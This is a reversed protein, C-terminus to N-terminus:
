NYKFKSMSNRGMAAGLTMEQLANQFQTDAVLATKFQEYDKVGSLNFVFSIDGVTNQVQSTNNSIIPQAMSESIMKPINMQAIKWLNETMANTFVKDGADLRTLVAGDSKRYILEQGDEQTYATQSHTINRSGSAYGAVGLMGELDNASKELFNQKKKPVYVVHGTNFNKWVSVTKSTMIKRYGQAALMAETSQKANSGASTGAGTNTGGTNGTNNKKATEEALRRQREAEEDEQRKHAAAEEAAKKAAEEAEKKKRAAEAEEDAQKQLANVTSRAQELADKFDQSVLKKQADTLNAFSKEISAISDKDQLTIKSPNIGQMMAEVTNAAQQDMQTKILADFKDLILDLDKHLTGETGLASKLEPTITGDIASLTTVTDTINTGATTVHDGLHQVDDSLEAKADMIVLDRQKMYSDIWEEFNSSLDDLMQQSDSLYKEYQQDSRNDRAEKLDARLKQIRAVAEESTNGEYAALQRELKTINQTSESIQKQYDYAEKEANKLEKYKSITKNLYSLQAEYGQRMLDIIAQKESEAAEMSAYRADILEYIRDQINKDTADYEGSEIKKYVDALEDGYKKAEAIYYEFSTNRLDLAAMGYKTIGGKNDTDFFEENQIMNLYHDIETQLRKVRAMGDDFKTWDLERISNSLEKIDTTLENIENVIGNIVDQAQYWETDGVRIENNAVAKALSAQADIYNQQLVALNRTDMQIQDTYDEVNTYHGHVGARNIMAQSVTNHQNNAQRDNEGQTKINNVQQLARTANQQRITEADIKQQAEAQRRHEIAENYNYCAQYFALDVYGKEYGEALKGLRTAGIAEGKNVNDIAQQMYVAYPNNKPVSAAKIPRAYTEVANRYFDVEEQNSQLIKKTTDIQKQILANQAKFGIANELQNDFYSIDNNAAEEANAYTQSQLNFYETQNTAYNLAEEMRATELNEVGQNYAYLKAYVNPNNNAITKLIDDPIQKNQDIYSKASDLAKKYDGSAKTQKKLIAQADKAYGQLSSANRTTALAYAKNSEQTKTQSLNVRSNSNAYINDNKAEFYGTGVTTVNSIDEISADREADHVEKVAKVQDRLQENLEQIAKKAEYGKNYWESYVDIVERVKESYKKIDNPGIKGEAVNKKIEEAQAKTVLGAKIAANMQKDAFDFYHQGGTNENAIQQYIASMARNRSEEATNYVGRDLLSEAKDTWKDINDTWRGIKVEIWDVLNELEEKFKDLASKKKSKKKSKGKSKSKSKTSKKKKSSSSDSTDTKPVYTTKKASVGDPYATGGTGFAWARGRTNTYGNNLLDETQDANFIIDGKRVDRFEPGSEGLLEWHSGRVRMEPGLEGVLATETKKAGINGQAFAATGMWSGTGDGGGTSGSGGSSVSPASVKKNSLSSLTSSVQRIKRLLIDVTSTVGSFISSDLRSKNAEAIAGPINKTQTIVKKVGSEAKPAGLDGIKANAKIKDASDGVELLNKKTNALDSDAKKTEAKAELVVQKAKSPGSKTFVPTTTSMTSEVKAKIKPAAKAVQKNTNTIKSGLPNGQADVYTIKVRGDIKKIAEEVQATGEALSEQNFIVKIQAAGDDGTSSDIIQQVKDIEADIDEAYLNVGLQMAYQYGSDKNQQLAKQYLQEVVQRQAVSAENTVNGQLTNIYNLNNQAEHLQQLTKVFDAFGKDEFQSTDVSMIWPEELEQKSILVHAMATNIDSIATQVEETQVKPSSELEAKMGVLESMKANAEDVGSFVIPIEELHQQSGARALGANIGGTLENLQDSSTIKSEAAQLALLRQESQELLQNYYEWTATHEQNNKKLEEIKAKMREVSAEAEEVNTSNEGGKLFDGIGAESFQELFIQMMDDTMIFDEGFKEKFHESMMMALEDINKFIMGGDETFWDTLGNEKLVSEIEDYMAFAGSADETFFKKSFKQIMDYYDAAGGLGFDKDGVFMRTFAEFDDNGWFGKDYLDKYTEMWGQISKYRDGYDGSSVAAQWDAYSNATAKYAGQLEQLANINDVIADQANIREQISNYLTRAEDSETDGLNHYEDTLEKIKAQNKDYQEKLEDYKAAIDTRLNERELQSLRRTEKTDLQLGSATAVLADKYQANATTLKNYTDATVNGTSTQEKLATTLASTSDTVSKLQTETAEKWASFSNQMGTATDDVIYGLESLLTITEQIANNTDVIGYQSAMQSLAKISQQSATLGDTDWEVNSLSLVTEDGIDQVLSAYKEQLSTKFQDTFFNKQNFGLVEAVSMDQLTQRLNIGLNEAIAGAQSNVLSNIRDNIRSQTDLVDLNRSLSEWNEETLGMEQRFQSMRTEMINFYDTAKIEKLDPNFISDMLTAISDEGSLDTSQLQFLMDEFKTSSIDDMLTSLNELNQIANILTEDETDISSVLLAYNQKLEDRATTLQNTVDELEQLLEQAYPDSSFDYISSSGQEVWSNTMIDWYGAGDITTKQGDKARLDAIEKELQQQRDVLSRTSSNGTHNGNLIGGIHEDTNGTQRDINERAQERLSEQKALTLQKYQEIQDKIVDTNAIIADGEDTYGTILVPFQDAIQQRVQYYESSGVEAAEYKDLLAQLSDANNQYSKIEDQIAETKKRDTALLQQNRKIIADSSTNVAEFAKVLGYIVVAGAAIGAFLAGWTIGLGATTETVTRTIAKGSADVMGTAQEFVKTTAGVEKGLSQFASGLLTAVKMNNKGSKLLVGYVAILATAATPLLGFNNVLDLTASGLDIFFNIVDRNATQAWAQQWKNQIEALHGSISDKYKQLEEEASGFSDQSSEYVSRLVDPSQLVSAVVNARNKGALTELLGQSRNTGYKKDTEVIEEFVDAIDQLIEYTSRFNGNEDLIDVGKFDNSAVATYDKIIQRSKAETQVVFDDVDEGLEALQDKAEQTGVIRLAVTRFANGVKNPDQIIQNGATILAISEDIDNNATRLTAASNQLATALGETSISFNNGINNLKDLIDEQSLDDYAASMAILADTAESIDSFESVNLLVSANKASRQAQDLSQGLRMFDATSQQIVLGTTGAANAIDYSATQFEKLRSLPEESVKAMETLADDLDHIIQFGQKLENWLTRLSVYSALYAGIERLKGVLHTSFTDGTKNARILEEELRNVQATAQDLTAQNVHDLGVRIQELQQRMDNGMKPNSQIIRSIRSQLSTIDRESAAIKDTNQLSKNLEEVRNCLQTVEELEQPNTIDIGQRVKEQIATITNNLDLLDTRYQTLSEPTVRNTDLLHQYSGTKKSYDNAYKNLANSYKSQTAQITRQIQKQLKPDFDEFARSEVIEFRQQLKETMSQLAAQLNSGGGKIGNVGISGIEKLLNQEQEYVSTINHKHQEAAAKEKDKQQQEQEKKATEQAASQVALQQEQAVKQRKELENQEKQAQAAQKELEISERINALRQKLAEEIEQLTQQQEASFQEFGSSLQKNVEKLDEYLSPDNKSQKERKELLAYKKRLNKEYTDYQKQQDQQLRSEKAVSNEVPKEGVVRNMFASKKNFDYQYRYTVTRLVGEVKEETQYVYEALHNAADYAEQLKSWIDQNITGNAVDADFKARIAVDAEKRELDSIGEKQKRGVKSPASTNSQKSSEKAKNANGAIEKTATAINTFNIGQLQSYQTIINTLQGNIDSLAKHLLSLVGIESYVSNSVIGAEAIFLNNKTTILQNVESLQKRLSSLDVNEHQINAENTPEPPNVITEGNDGKSFIEKLGLSSATLNAITELRDILTNLQDSVATLDMQSGNFLSSLAQESEKTEEQMKDSAAAIIQMAEAYRSEFSSIDVGAQRAAESLANYQETELDLGVQSSKKYASHGRVTDAFQWYQGIVPTRAKSNGLTQFLDDNINAILSTAKKNYQAMPNGITNAKTGVSLNFVPAQMIQQLAQASEKIETIVLQLNKFQNILNNAEDGDDIQGIVQTFSQVNSVLTQLLTILVQFGEAYDGTMDSANFNLAAEELKNQLFDIQNAYAKYSEASQNSWEIFKQKDDNDGREDATVARDYWYDTSELAEDRKQKLEDLKEGLAQVDDLIDDFEWQFEFENFEREAELLKQIEDRTRRAMKEQKEFDGDSPVSGSGDGSENHNHASTRTDNQGISELVEKLSLATTHAQELSDNLGEFGSMDLGQAKLSDLVEFMKSFNDITEPFAGKLSNNFGDYTSRLEQVFNAVEDSITSLNGGRAEFANARRWLESVNKDRFFQEGTIKGTKWDSLLEKKELIQNWAQIVHESGNTLNEYFKQPNMKKIQKIGAVQTLFANLNQTAKELDSTNIDFEVKMKKNKSLQEMGESLTKTSAQLREITDIAAQVSEDLSYDDKPM